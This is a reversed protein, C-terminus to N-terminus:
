QAAGTVQDLRQFLDEWQTEGLSARLRQQVANWGSAARELKSRGKPTLRLRRQRRDVGPASRIWGQQELLSLTRSLTTSDLALIEGLDGQTTEGIRALVQLLTFQTVRLGAPRLAEDYLQTVARSARRLTACACPLAPIRSSSRERPGGMFIHICM